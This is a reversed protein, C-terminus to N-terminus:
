RRAEHPASCPFVHSFRHLDDSFHAIQHLDQGSIMSFRKSELGNALPNSSELSSSIEAKPDQLRRRQKHSAATFARVERLGFVQLFRHNQASKTHSVKSNRHTKAMFRMFVCPEEDFTNRM